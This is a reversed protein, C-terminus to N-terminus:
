NRLIPMGALRFATRWSSARLLIENLRTNLIETLADAEVRILSFDDAERAKSWDTYTEASLEAQRTELEKPICTKRKYEKRALEVNRLKEQDTHDGSTSPSSSPSRSPETSASAENSPSGSPQVSTSPSNSPISTREWHGWDFRLTLARFPRYLQRASLGTRIYQVLM